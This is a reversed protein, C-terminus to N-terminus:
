CPLNKVRQPRRRLWDPPTPMSAPLRGVTGAVKPDAHVAHSSLHGAAKHFLRLTYNLRASPHGMRWFMQELRPLEYGDCDPGTALLERIEQQLEPTLAEDADMLLAWDHSTKDLASQKQPGYGLFEHQFVVAGYSKAISVTEDTSFTDLVVIEDAWKISELCSPLTLANNLTTVFASLKEM